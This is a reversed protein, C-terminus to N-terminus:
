SDSRKILGKVTKKLYRSEFMNFIFRSMLWCSTLILIKKTLCSYNESVQLQSDRLRSVVELPHLNWNFLELQNSNSTLEGSEFDQHWLFLINWVWWSTVLSDQPSGDHRVPLQSPRLRIIPLQSTRLGGRDAVTVSMYSAQEWVVVTRWQSRCTAPKTETWWPGGIHGAPLQSPKLGGRDAVTVSLYNAQDLGVVTRWQSRCTAPKTESWWPEGSHGVPLQSPKLGGRDAVTVSLYSAQDLGVVTWWQPRCTAPKAEAWWPGGSHGLSLQSSRNLGGRDAVTDSLYSAQDLLGVVTRWQPRCTAPKAEAWWPGGSHGVPLQSPKLGGRDAM